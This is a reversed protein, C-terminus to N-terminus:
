VTETLARARALQGSTQRLRQSLMLAISKYFRAELHPYLQFVEKIDNVDIADVEAETEAVASASAVSDEVFAMEGFIDGPSLKAIPTGRLVEIVVSGRVLAFLAAPRSNVAIILQQAAFVIRRSKSRLLKWDNETLYKL